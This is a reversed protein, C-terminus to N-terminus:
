FAGVSSVLARRVPRPVLREALPPAPHPQLAQRRRFVVILVDDAGRVRFAGNFEVTDGLNYQVGPEWGRTMKTTTYTTTTTSTPSVNRPDNALM